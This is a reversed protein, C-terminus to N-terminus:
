LDFREFDQTTPRGPLVRGRFYGQLDGAAAEFAGASPVSDAAAMLQGEPTFSAKMTARVKATPPIYSAWKVTKPDVMVMSPIPERDHLVRAIAALRAM